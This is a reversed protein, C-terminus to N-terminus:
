GSVVVNLERSVNDIAWDTVTRIDETIGDVYPFGTSDGYRFESQIHVTIINHAPWGRLDATVVHTGM